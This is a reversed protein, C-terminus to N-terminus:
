FPWSGSPGASNVLQHSSSSIAPSYYLKLIDWDPFAEPFGKVVAPHCFEFFGRSNTNLKTCIQERLKKFIEDAKHSGIDMSEIASLLGDGFCHALGLAIVPRCGVVGPSYDGGALLAYLLLGGEM